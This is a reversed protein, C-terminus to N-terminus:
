LTKLRGLSRMVRRRVADAGMGYLAGVQRWSHGEKSKMLDAIDPEEFRKRKTVLSLGMVRFAEEPIRESLVCVCLAYYNLKVEHSLQAKM